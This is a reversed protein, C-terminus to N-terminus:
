LFPIYQGNFLYKLDHNRQGIVKAPIGAVIAYAPVDKTVIAGAAVIAGEGITTNPLIITNPGIWVRDGIIISKKNPQCRFYPDRHDHQESWISVNSSLNVNKGFVIGNRADLIANDGIITGEGIQLKYPDRIETGHYIVVNNAFRMFCIHKYFFIRLHHSPFNSLIYLYYRIFGSYYKVINSIGTSSSQPHEDLMNVHINRKKNKLYYYIYVFPSFLTIFLVKKLIIIALLIIFIHM